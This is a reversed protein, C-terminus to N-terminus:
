PQSNDPVLLFQNATRVIINKTAVYYIANSSRNRFVIGIQYSGPQIADKSMFTSFGSSRVDITLNPFAEQVDPREISQIPFFYNGSDSQLVIFREYQSQDPEERLFAWGLLNYLPQLDSVIPDLRDVWFSIQDTTEPLENDFQVPSGSPVDVPKVGAIELRLQNATRVIVKNTVVRYISNSSKHRFIIGIQYSGPRLVDKSIYTSFGSNQVDITLDPFAKQIDQIDPRVLSQIPFFYNGADSQLVIFREYQSQDSEERLFAWGWLFYLLQGDSGVPDLRDVSFSILDTSAALEENFQISKGYKLFFMVYLDSAFTLYVLMLSWILIHFWYKKLVNLM